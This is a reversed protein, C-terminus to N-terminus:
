AWTNIIVLKQLKLIIWICNLILPKIRKRCIVMSETKAPNFGVLWATALSHISVLNRNLINGAIIPNEVIAYLSTDDAFLRIVILNLLLIMLTFWFNCLAYYQGKPFGLLFM